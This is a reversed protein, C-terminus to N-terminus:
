DRRYRERTEIKRLQRAIIMDTIALSINDLRDDSLVEKLKQESIDIRYLINLLRNFDHDLLHAVVQSLRKRLGELDVIDMIEDNDTLQLDRVIFGKLQKIPVPSKM